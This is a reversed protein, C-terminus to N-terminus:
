FLNRKIFTASIVNIEKRVYPEYLDLLMLAEETFLPSGRITREFMQGIFELLNEM